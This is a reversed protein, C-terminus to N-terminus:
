LNLYTGLLLILFTIGGGAVAAVCLVVLWEIKRAV